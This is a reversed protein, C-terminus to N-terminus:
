GESENEKNKEGYLKSELQGIFDPPFLEHHATGLHELTSMVFDKEKITKEDDNEGHSLGFRKLLLGELKRRFEEGGEGKTEIANLMAHTRIYLPSDMGEFYEGPEEKDLKERIIKEIKHAEIGYIDDPLKINDRKIIDRIGLSANALKEDLEDYPREGLYWEAEEPTFEHYKPTYFEGGFINKNAEFSHDEFNEM